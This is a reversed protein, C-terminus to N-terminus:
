HDRLRIFMLRLSTLEDLIQVKDLQSTLICDSLTDPFKKKLLYRCDFVLDRVAFQKKISLNLVRHITLIKVPAGEEYKSLFDHCLRLKSIYM